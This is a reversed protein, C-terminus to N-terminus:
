PKKTRISIDTDEIKQHSIAQELGSQQILLHIQEPTLRKDERADAYLSELMDSVESIVQMDGLLQFHNGHNRIEIGLRKELMKMHENFPGCLNALFEANEPELTLKISQATTM